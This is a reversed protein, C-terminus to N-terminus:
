SCEKKVLAAIQRENLGFAAARAEAEFVHQAESYQDMSMGLSRALKMSEDKSEPFILAMSAGVRRAKCYQALHFAEHRVTNALEDLNGKHNDVCVVLQKKYTAFGYVGERCLEGGSFVSHGTETVARLLFNVGTANFPQREVNQAVASSSASAGLLIVSGALALAALQKIM